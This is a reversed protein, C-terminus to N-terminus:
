KQKQKTVALNAFCQTAKLLSHKRGLSAKKPTPKPQINRGPIKSEFIKEQKTLKQIIAMVALFLKFRLDFSGAMRFFNLRGTGDAAPRSAKEKVLKLFDIADAGQATNRFYNGITPELVQTVLNAVSGFRAIVKPAENAPVHIIQSVDLNFPFGDKSRVTITSLNKDLNHSESRADAWNLVLNTTPVPELKTTYKNLAYKGPGFPEMWVGRQGKSVINGHKFTDGTVDKGDEGVVQSHRLLSWETDLGAEIVANTIPMRGFFAPIASGTTCIVVALDAIM